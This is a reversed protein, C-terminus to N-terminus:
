KIPLIKIPCKDSNKRSKMVQTLINCIFYIIGEDYTIDGNEFVSYYFIEKLIKLTALTGILKNSWQNIINQTFLNPIYETRIKQNLQMNQKIIPLKRIKEYTSLDFDILIVNLKKGDQIIINGPHLDMHTAVPTGETTLADQFELISERIQRMLYRLQTDSFKAQLKEKNDYSLLSTGQIYEILVFYHKEGVHLSGAFNGSEAHFFSHTTTLALSAKPLDIIIKGCQYLQAFHTSHNKQAYQSLVCLTLIDRIARTNSQTYIKLIYKKNVNKMLFVHAGSIGGSMTKIYKLKNKKIFNSLTLAHKSKKQLMNYCKDFINQKQFTSM